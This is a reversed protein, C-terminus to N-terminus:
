HKFNRIGTFIMAIGYKDCAEISLNDNQSGGPQIIATIGAKHAEEVCDAFPFFADSALAAGKLADAGLFETAHDIAQKTAWIRNVQGGALGLSQGNKGIAIGNSKIHKALKWTFLLDAMEAESPARKTVIKLEGLASNDGDQLLLGGSVKKFDLTARGASSDLVLLRINKKSQLIELAAETYSPAIVIEIFIKDIEAAVDADIARNAAIIGGFISVPDADFAKKWAEHLNQGIGVGCPTAHKVAVIAAEAFERVLALAGHSDNINNFSLEKGHIQEANVLDTPAALIERYFVADQHPNEGYRLDQAKEFTLTLKEPFKPADAVLNGLYEAILADYAATHAYATAALKFKFDHSLGGAALQELVASYDSNDVVVAVSAHNKAASRIMAPGGIDINEIIQALDDTKLITEKFPYLNVCVLDILDIGAEALFDMHHPMDRRALIGGHVAPHLTKLRGDLGEPFGTVESIEVCAIGEAALAKFTNGTSAIEYGFETLGRAFDVIGAKDSVSILAYKKM